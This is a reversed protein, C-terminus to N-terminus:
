GPIALVDREANSVCKIGSVTISPSELEIAIKM